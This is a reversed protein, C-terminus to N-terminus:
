KMLFFFTADPRWTTDGEWSGTERDRPADWAKGLIKQSRVTSYHRGSVSINQQRGHRKDTEWPVNQQRGHRRDTERPVKYMREQSGSKKDRLADQAKGLIKQSRVASYHRGSVSINQQRGHRGDTERPVKYTREQSEQRQPCGVRSGTELPMRHRVLFKRAGQRGKGVEQRGTRGTCAKGVGQRGPGEATEKTDPTEGEWGMKEYDCTKGTELPILHAMGEIDAIRIVHTRKWEERLEVRIMGEEGSPKAPGRLRLLVVLAVEYVKRTEDHVSFLGELQGVMRRDLQGMQLELPAHEKRLDM